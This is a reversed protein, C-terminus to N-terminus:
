SDSEGIRAHRGIESGLADHGMVEFGDVGLNMREYEFAGTGTDIDHVERWEIGKETRVPTEYKM